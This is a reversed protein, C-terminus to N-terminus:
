AVMRQEGPGTVNTVCRACLEPHEPSTGIDARRHWCRPCKDHPSAAVTIRMRTGDELEMEAAEEPAQEVPRISAESTILVFRLEDNLPALEQVLSDPGYLTVQADLNAGIVKSNRLSELERSVLARIEIVREWFRATIQGADIGFLGEYWEAAFLPQSRDGPLHEWIEDATFTLIPALWRVLAEAIHYMATQASRRARSDPPTTYLRDKIIDLYFGGMDVVCFNHLLHYIRHMEYSDYANVILEQL